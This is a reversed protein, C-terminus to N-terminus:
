VYLYNLSTIQDDGIVNLFKGSAIRVPTLVDTRTKLLHSTWLGLTSNPNDTNKQIGTHM